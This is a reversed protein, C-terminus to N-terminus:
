TPYGGDYRGDDEYEGTAPYGGDINFIELQVVSTADRCEQLTTDMENKYDAIKDDTATTFEEYESTMDSIFDRIESTLAEFTMIDENDIFQYDDPKIRKILPITIVEITKAQNIDASHIYAIVNYPDELLINPVPVTASDETITPVVVIAKDSKKNCFHVGTINAMGEGTLTLEHNQDWQYVSDTTYSGYCNLCVRLM